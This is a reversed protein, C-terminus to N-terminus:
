RTKQMLETSQEVLTLFEKWAKVEGQLRFMYNPDNCLALKDTAENRKAAIFEVLPTFEQSKLLNLSRAVTFTVNVM